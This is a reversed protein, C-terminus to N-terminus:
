KIKWRTKKFMLNSMKIIIIKITWKQKNGVHESTEKSVM